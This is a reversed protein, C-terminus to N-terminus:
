SDFLAGYAAVGRSELGYVVKRTVKQNSIIVVAEIAGAAKKTTDALHSESRSDRWINYAMKVLDPRGDKRTDHIVAEPDAAYVADIIGQGFTALPNPTSWIIRVPHEPKEVFLSLCPAIGSGTAMVIVPDFMGAVRMVGYQPVGRTYMKTPPNRIIKNTWDGANSIVVSFGMKGANSMSSPVMGKEIDEPSLAAPNPITAFAHTEKLPQDALRVAQGFHANCYDFNLKICHDSLPEAVVDRLHLRTWPYIVLGTIATLMWFSPNAALVLGYSRHALTAVDATILMVQAWFFVVVSWGLFRHVCEFWNHAVVRCRPHAFALIALLLVVVGYSVILVATKIGTWSSSADANFRAYDQSLQVLFVIYWFTAAVACGSHVGGYSHVKAMLHRVRLPLRRAVRPSAFVHFLINVVHENRVVLAALLNAAVANNSGSYSLGGLCAFARGALVALVAINGIFALTFIRRYVSGFNWRLYRYARSGAKDPLPRPQADDADESEGPNQNQIQVPAVTVAVGGKEKEISNRGSSTTTSTAGSDTSLGAGISDADSNQLTSPLSTVLEAPLAASGAQATFSLMTPRTIHIHPHQAVHHSPHTSSHRHMCRSSPTPQTYRDHRIPTHLLLLLPSVLFSSSSEHIM